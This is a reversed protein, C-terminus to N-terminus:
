EFFLTFKRIEALKQKQASAVLCNQILPANGTKVRIAIREM